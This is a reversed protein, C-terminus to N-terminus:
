LTSPTEEVHLLAVEAFMIADDNFCCFCIQLSLSSLVSSGRWLFCCHHLQNLDTEQAFARMTEPLPSACKRNRSSADVGAETILIDGM